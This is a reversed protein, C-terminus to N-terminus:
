VAGKVPPAVGIARLAAHAVALVEAATRTSTDIYITCGRLASLLRRQQQQYIAAPWAPNGRRRRVGALDVALYIVVDPELLAWLHPVESHEQACVRADYGEAALAAALTSKGSACPGVLVLRPSRGDGDRRAAPRRAWEPVRSGDM